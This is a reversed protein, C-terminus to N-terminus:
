SKKVLDEICRGQTPPPAPMAFGGDDRAQAVAVPFFCRFLPLITKDVTMKANCDKCGAFLDNFIMNAVGNAEFQRMATDTNQFLQVFQVVGSFMFDSIIQETIFKIVDGNYQM